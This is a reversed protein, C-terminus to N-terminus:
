VFFARASNDSIFYGKGYKKGCGTCVCKVIWGPVGGEDVDGKSGIHYDKMLAIRHLTHDAFVPNKCKAKTRHPAGFGFDAIFDEQTKDNFFAM